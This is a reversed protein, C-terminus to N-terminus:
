RGLLTRLARALREYQELRNYIHCSVRLLRHPSAPWYIIPVEIAFQEMLATQLPDRAPPQPRPSDPLPVAALAGLV